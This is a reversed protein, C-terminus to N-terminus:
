RNKKLEKRKRNEEKFFEYDGLTKTGRLKQLIVEEMKKSFREKKWEIM